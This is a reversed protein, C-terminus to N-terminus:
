YDSECSSHQVIASKNIKHCITPQFGTRDRGASYHVGASATSLHVRAFSMQLGCRGSNRRKHATYCCRFLFIGAASVERQPVADADQGCRGSNRRKHATYCCRFLFIGAASVERQPVADVDQGCRGSNRRKHATHCCRFLLPHCFCALPLGPCVLPPYRFSVTGLVPVTDTMHLM